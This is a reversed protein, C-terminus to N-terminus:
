LVIVRAPFGPLSGFPHLIIKIIASLWHQNNTRPAFIRIDRLYGYKGEYIRIPGRIWSGTDACHDWLVLFSSAHLYTYFPIEVTNIVISSKKFLVPLFKNIRYYNKYAHNKNEPSKFVFRIWSGTDACHDWLVLFSSAHLYTYFPIEILNVCKLM